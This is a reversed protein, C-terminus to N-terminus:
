FYISFTDHNLNDSKYTRTLKCMPLEAVRDPIESDPDADIVTVQYRKTRSWLKNDAHSVADYDRAYVIAPYKMMLSPPPQFYVNSTGLTSRLIADLELRRGM